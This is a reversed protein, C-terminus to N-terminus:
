FGECTFSKLDGEGTCKARRMKDFTMVISITLAQLIRMVYQKIIFENM